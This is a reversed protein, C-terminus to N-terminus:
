DIYSLMAHWSAWASSQLTSLKLWPRRHSASRRVRRHPAEFAWASQQQDRPIVSDRIFHRRSVTIPLIEGLNRKSNASHM